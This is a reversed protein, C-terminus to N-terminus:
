ELSKMLAKLKRYSSGNELSCQGCREKLKTANERVLKGEPGEMLARIVKDIDGKEILGTNEKSCKVRLGVKWEDVIFRANLPQDAFYPWCLMPVGNAISESTSNWGCHTFFGGVSPHALVQQQPAWNIVLGKGDSESVIQAVSSSYDIDDVLGARFVWLFRQKSALLGNLFEEYQTKSLITISGFSIYLVSSTPQQDLWALCGKDEEWLSTASEENLSEVWIGVDYIPVNCCKSLTAFTSAELDEFSNVVVAHARTACVQWSKTSNIWLSVTEDTVHKFHPIDENRLTPLGALKCFVKRMEIGTATSAEKVEELSVLEGQTLYHTLLLRSACCPYLVIRPIGLKDAVDQTPLTINFDSLLCTVPPGHRSLSLILQELDPAISLFAHFVELFSLSFGNSLDVGRSPLRVRRVLSHPAAAAPCPNHHEQALPPADAADAAFDLDVFTVIIGPQQKALLKCFRMLPNLHGQAPVPVAVVHHQQKAMAM